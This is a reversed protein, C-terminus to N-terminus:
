ANERKVIKNFQDSDNNNSVILALNNHDFIEFFKEWSISTLQGNHHKADKSFALRIVAGDKNDNLTSEVAMPLGQRKETWQKIDEHSTLTTQSDSM